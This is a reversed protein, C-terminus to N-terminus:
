ELAEKLAEAVKDLQEYTIPVPPLMRIVNAGAPLALVNRNMLEVLYPQVKEELEIGIMLGMTRISRIKDSQIEDLKSRFYNGKAEAEEWLKNDLQYQISASAAACALPNGGYTTGHKGKHVEIKDSFVAAGIPFGGGIGKALTMIDPQIGYHEIAFMKGTRSFGTQIEDIILMINKEDCLKRVAQLYEIDAINIGGEGQIPEIMIGATDEDVAEIMKEINNFPVFSFGPILPGFGDRYDSKHTASLAGMTRGHFGKETSIFKTKGTALRTLKIAAEMAETGSNTLFARTISEPTIEVLKKLLEAKTDNYFIGPCTILKAAQESIAKVVYDNAHGITAVGIGAVCDIYENGNDDWVLADKGKTIVINRKAFVDFEYLDQLEKYDVAVQADNDM